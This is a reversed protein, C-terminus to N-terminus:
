DLFVTYIIYYIYTYSQIYIDLKYRVSFVTTSRHFADTRSTNYLTLTLITLAMFIRKTATMHRASNGSPGLINIWKYFKAGEYGHKSLVSCINTGKTCHRIGELHPSIHCAVYQALRRPEPSARQSASM